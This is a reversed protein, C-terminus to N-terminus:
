RSNNRAHEEAPTCMALSTHLIIGSKVAFRSGVSVFGLCKRYLVLSSSNIETICEKSEAKCVELTTGMSTVLHSM